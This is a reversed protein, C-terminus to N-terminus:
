GIAASPLRAHEETEVATGLVKVTQDIQDPSIVVPPLFRVVNRGADLVLVGTNMCGTIINLIDFKFEVGLM